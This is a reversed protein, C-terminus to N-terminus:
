LLPLFESIKFLNIPVSNFIVKSFIRLKIKINLKIKLSNAFHRICWVFLLRHLCRCFINHHIIPVCEFLFISQHCTSTLILKWSFFLVACWYKSIFIKIRRIILLLKELISKMKYTEFFNFDNENYIWFIM